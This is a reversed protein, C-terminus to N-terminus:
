ARFEIVAIDEGKWGGWSAQPLPLRGAGPSAFIRGEEGAATGAYLAAPASEPMGEVFVDCARGFEGMDGPEYAGVGDRDVEVDHRLISVCLPLGALGGLSGPDHATYEEIGNSTHTLVTVGAPGDYTVIEDDSVAEFGDLADIAAALGTAVDDASDTDATYSAVLQLGPQGPLQFTVSVAGSAAAAAEIEGSSGEEAADAASLLSASFGPGQPGDEPSLVCVRGFPIPDGGDAATVAAAALDADSADIDLAQGSFRGTLTVVAAASTAAVIQSLTLDANVAAALGAAIATTNDSSSAAYTVTVGFVGLSYVRESAAGVTVTSVEASRGGDVAASVLDHRFNTALAGERGPRLRARYDAARQSAPNQRPTGIPM